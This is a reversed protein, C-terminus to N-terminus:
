KTSYDDSRRREEEGIIRDLVQELQQTTKALQSNDSYSDDIIEKVKNLLQKFYLMKEDVGAPATTEQVPDNTAAALEKRAYYSQRTQLWSSIDALSYDSKNAELYSKNV